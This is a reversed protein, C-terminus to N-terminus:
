LWLRSFTAMRTRSHQVYGIMKSWASALLILALIHIYIYIAMADTRMKVEAETLVLNDRDLNCGMEILKQIVHDPNAMLDEFRLIVCAPWKEGYAVMSRNSYGDYYKM